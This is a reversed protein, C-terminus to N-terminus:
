NDTVLTYGEGQAKLIWRPTDGSDGIKKRLRWIHTDVTRTSPFYTYGWVADLILDRSVASGMHKALLDLLAYETRTLPLAVSGRLATRKELDVTIEGFRLTTHKKTGENREHRRLLAQVRAVLERADFPKALYDDAGAELGEVRDTVEKRTTLMLVPVSLGLRRVEAAVELGTLNPMMLDLVVLGPKEAGILELGQAGDVAELVRYGSATLCHRISARMASDDDVVLIRPLMNM